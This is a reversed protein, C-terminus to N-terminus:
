SDRRFFTQQNPDYCWVNGPKIHVGGLWQNPEHWDLYHAERSRIRRGLETILLPETLDLEPGQNAAQFCLPQAGGMLNELQKFFLTDGLFPAAEAETLQRFVDGPLNGEMLLNLARHATLGLGNDVSPFEQCFREIAQPVFPLLDDTQKIMPLWAMPDSGTLRQWFDSALVFHQKTAPEEFRTLEVLEDSAASGLFLDTVILKVRDAACGQQHLFHLVWLLQLQDYLDHEFWLCIVQYQSLDHLADSRQKTHQIIKSAPAWQQSIIYQNRRSHVSLLDDDWLLPGEHFADRIPLFSGTIGAARLGEVASDGNTIHLVPKSM